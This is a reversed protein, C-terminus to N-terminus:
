SLSAGVPMGWWLIMVPLKHIALFCLQSITFRLFAVFMKLFLFWFFVGETTCFVVIDGCRGRQGTYFCVHEDSPLIQPIYCGTVLVGEIESYKGPSPFSWKFHRDFFDLTTM